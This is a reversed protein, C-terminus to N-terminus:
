NLEFWPIVDCCEAADISCDSIDNQIKRTNPLIKGVATPLNQWAIKPLLVKLTLKEAFSGYLM